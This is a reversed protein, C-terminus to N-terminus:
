AKVYGKKVTKRRRDFAYISPIYTEVAVIFRYGVFGGLTNMMLDDIDCLRYSGHYIGFIGTLQTVEIALSLLMSAVVVKKKDYGFYYRLFMGFPITMLINFVVQLVARNCITKVYTAPENIVLPSEKVIDVVFHFPIIQLDHTHLTAAQALTPLPFLVVAVLCLSYLLLAYQLLVRVLNFSKHKITTIAFIPLTFLIAFYPFNHIGLVISDFTTKM